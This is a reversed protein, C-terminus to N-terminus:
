AKRAQARFLKIQNILSIDRRLSGKELEYARSNKRNFDDTIYDDVQVGSQKLHTVAANDLMKESITTREIAVFADYKELLANFIEYEDSEIAGPKEAASAYGCVFAIMFLALVLIKKM